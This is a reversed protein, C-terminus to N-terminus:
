SRVSEVDLHLLKLKRTIKYVTEFADWSCNKFWHILRQMESVIFDLVVVRFFWDNHNLIGYTDYKKLERIKEKFYREKEESTMYQLKDKEYTNLIKENWVQKFIRFTVNNKKVSVARDHADFASQIIDTDIQIIKDTLEERKKELNAIDRSVRVKKKLLEMRNDLELQGRLEKDLKDVKRKVSRM